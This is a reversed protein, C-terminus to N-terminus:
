KRRKLAAALRPVIEELNAHLFVMRQSEKVRALTEGSVDCERLLCLAVLVYVSESLIELDGSQRAIRQKEDHHTLRNRTGTVVTAWVETDGVLWSFVVGVFSALEILRGRLRPENSYELQDSVWQGAKRGVAKTVARSVKKRYSKFVAKPMVENAFRMRHFTEAALVVNQLRNEPYLHASYRVTMLSGLVVRYQRSLTVWKAVSELGGIHVLGFLMEHPAQPRERKVLEAPSTYYLDIPVPQVKRDPIKIPLELILDSRKV